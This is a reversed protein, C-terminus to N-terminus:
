NEQIMHIPIMLSLRFKTSCFCDCSSLDHVRGIQPAVCRLTVAFSLLHALLARECVKNQHESRFCGLIEINVHMKISFVFLFFFSCAKNKDRLKAPTSLFCRLVNQCLFVFVKIQPEKKRMKCKADKFVKDISETTCVSLPSASERKTALTELLSSLTTTWLLRSASSFVPYHMSLMELSDCLEHTAKSSKLCDRIIPFTFFISPWVLIFVKFFFM